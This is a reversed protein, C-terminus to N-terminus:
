PKQEKPLAQIVPQSQNLQYTWNGSSNSVTFRMLVAHFPTGPQNLYWKGKSQAFEYIPYDNGTMTASRALFSTEVQKPNGYIFSFISSNKMDGETATNGTVFFHELITGTTHDFFIHEIRHSPEDKCNKLVRSQIEIGDQKIEAWTWRICESLGTSTTGKWQVWQGKQFQSVEFSPALGPKSQGAGGDGTGNGGAGVKTPAKNGCAMFILSLSISLFLHTKLM